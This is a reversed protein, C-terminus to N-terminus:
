LGRRELTEILALRLAEARGGRGGFGARTPLELQEVLKDLRAVLVADYRARVPVLGPADKGARPGRATVSRRAAAM